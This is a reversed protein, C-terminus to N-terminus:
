CANERDKMGLKVSSVKLVRIESRLDLQEKMAAELKEYASVKQVHQNHMYRHLAATPYLLPTRTLHTAQPRFSASSPSVGEIYEATAEKTM